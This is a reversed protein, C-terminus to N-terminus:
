VAVVIVVSINDLGGYENSRSVLKEVTKQIKESSAMSPDGLEEKIIKLIEEDGILGHLGDSCLLFIDNKKTTYSYVDPRVVFQHGLAGMLINRQKQHVLQERTMLGWTLREQLQSQDRTLQYIQNNNVLYCRSDGINLITAEKGVLTMSVLTTGMGKLESKQQAFEFIQKNIDLSLKNIYVREKDEDQIEYLQELLSIAMKSAIDGGRHGGMGDAVAFLKKKPCLLIADQNSDRKKGIDTMGSFVIAM